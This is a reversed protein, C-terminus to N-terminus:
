LGEHENEHLLIYNRIVSHGQEEALSAATLDYKTKDRFSVGLSALYKITELQGYRAAVM